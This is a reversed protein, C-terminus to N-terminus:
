KEDIKEGMPLFKVGVTYFLLCAGMCSIVIFWELHNPSYIAYDGGWVPYIQGVIVWDYRSVFMGLIVCAAATLIGNITRTRQFTFILLPILSGILVEFLWFNLNLPGKLLAMVAKYEHSPQSFLNMIIKWGMVLLTLGIFLAMIKGLEMLLKNLPPSIGEGNMHYTFATFCIIFAAGCAVASLIFYISMYAGYWYPRGKLIGFIIGLTATATIEFIFAGIGFIRAAKAKKKLLCGFECILFPLALGYFLGMWWIPATFQPSLFNYVMLRFPRELELGISAFGCLLTIIALFIARKGIQEFKKIRFVHGLSAIICLGTGTVVFFIYTSILIGLPVLNTTGYIEEVSTFKVFAAYAGLLIPIGLFGVWTRYVLKKNLLQYM